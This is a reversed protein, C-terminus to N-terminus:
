RPDFRNVGDINRVAGAKGVFEEREM